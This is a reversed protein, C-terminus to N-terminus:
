YGQTYESSCQYYGAQHADNKCKDCISVSLIIAVEPKEEISIVELENGCNECAVSMKTYVDEETDLIFAHSLPQDEMDNSPAGNSSM